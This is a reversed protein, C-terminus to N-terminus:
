NDRPDSPYNSIIQYKRGMSHLIDKWLGESPSQFTFKPKPKAVIWSETDLENQLQEPGWGSYGVFFRIDEPKVQGAIVLSKLYEFDGGWFLGPVVEASSESMAAINHVYHLSDQQVPGGLFVPCDFIPFEPLIDNLSYQIPRNLIFGVAGDENHETLLVVTRLFNPDKLFPNALLYSGKVAPHPSKTSQM